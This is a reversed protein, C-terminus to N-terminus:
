YRGYLKTAEYMVKINEVPTQPAMNNAVIMVFRGGDMVGSECIRRVDSVIEGCSGDKLLMVTPGGNITVDPGLERRLRGHDVPFGTDFARIGLNDRLFKFHRTADGCLHISADSGDSFEDFFRRHYPYVFEKYHEASLLAIADDAFFYGTRKFIGKDPSDPFKEWRRERMYKMRRILNETVYTMLDHYYREDTMMDLLLNDAGRLKYAVDLPGDTGEGPMAGPAIM